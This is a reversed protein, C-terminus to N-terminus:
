RGPQKPHIEGHTLVTGDPSAVPAAPDETVNFVVAGDMGGLGTAALVEASVSFDPTAFNSIVDSEVTAVHTSAQHGCILLTVASLLILSAQSLMKM